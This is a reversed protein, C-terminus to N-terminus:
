GASTDGVMVPAALRDRRGALRRWLMPVLRWVLVPIVLALFVILVMVVGIADGFPWNVAAGFQSAAINGIMTSGPGGVLQPAFYDGFSIIFAFTAGAWVSNGIIPAVVNVATRTRNAGLDSSADLLDRPLRELALYIPMFAFPLSLHVLVVIVAFDNFLLFNLPHHVLGLKELTVNIVGEEGFVLRWGYARLLYGMWLAIV